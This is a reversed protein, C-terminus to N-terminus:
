RAGPACKGRGGRGARAERRNRRRRPAAGSQQPAARRAAAAAPAAAHQSRRRPRQRRHGRCADRPNRPMAPTRRLAARRRRRPAVDGTAAAGARVPAAAGVRRTLQADVARPEVAVGAARAHTRPPAGNSRRHPMSRIRRRSRPRRSAEQAVACGAGCDPGHAAASDVADAGARRTVPPAYSARRRNPRTTRRRRGTAAAGARRTRSNVARQPSVAMPKTTGYAGVRPIPAGHGPRVRNTTIPLPKVQPANSSRRRGRSSDARCISATPPSRSARYSRRAPCRPSLRGACPLQAYHTPPQRPREAVNVAYPRNYSNWCRNSCREVVPHVARALRAPGLRLGPRLRRGRGGAAATGRSSRRRGCRARSTLQGPVLGVARRHVGLPWLSVACLGLARRRGVHSGLGVACGLPWLSVAGLGGTSQRRSGCRATTPIRRGRATSRRSGRRRGDAAVRVGHERNARYYRDRDASWTDFGDLAPATACTPRCTRTASLTATQGPLVQQLATPSPRRPKAKACSSRRRAAPRAVRRDPVPGAAAAHGAYEAHRRARRRRSRARARARHRPGARRVARARPRRPAVRSRQHRRRPPLSRRRLRGRRPRRRSVWLNDGSAVPYNLGVEAWENARDEPALHVRAASIPSAVSAAPLDDDAGRAPPATGALACASRSRSRPAARLPATSAICIMSMNAAM